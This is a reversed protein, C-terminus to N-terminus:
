PDLPVIGGPPMKDDPSHLAWGHEFGFTRIAAISSAYRRAVVDLAAHSEECPEKAHAMVISLLLRLTATAAEAARDHLQANSM